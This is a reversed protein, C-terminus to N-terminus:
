LRRGGESEPIDLGYGEVLRKAADRSPPRDSKRGTVSRLIVRPHTRSRSRGIPSARAILEVWSSEWIDASTSFRVPFSEGAAVKGAQFTVWPDAAGGNCRRLRVDYADDDGANFIELNIQVRGTTRGSEYEDHAEGTIVWKVSRRDWWRFVISTLLAVAAAILATGLGEWWNM